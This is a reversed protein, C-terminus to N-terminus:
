VRNWKCLPLKTQYLCKCTKWIWTINREWFFIWTINKQPFNLYYKAAIRQWKLATDGLAVIIKLWSQFTFMKITSPQALWTQFASSLVYNINTFHVNERCNKLVGFIIQVYFPRWEIIPCSHLSQLIWVSVKSNLFFFFSLLYLGSATATECTEFAPVLTFTGITRLHHM